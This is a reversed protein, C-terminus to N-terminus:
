YPCDQRGFSFGSSGFRMILGLSYNFHPVKGSHKYGATVNVGFNSAFWLSSGVGLNVTGWGSNGIGVYGGGAYAYPSIWNDPQLFYYQAALNFSKYHYNVAKIRQEAILVEVTKEGFRKVKNFAVSLNLSFNNRFYRTVSFKPIGINWHDRANAFENFMGINNGTLEANMKTPFFDIAEAGVGIVWKNNESQSFVGFSILLSLLLLKLKM